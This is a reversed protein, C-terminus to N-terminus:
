EGADLASTLFPQAIGGRGEGYAKMAYHKIVYTFVPIVKGNVHVICVNSRIGVGKEQEFVRSLM